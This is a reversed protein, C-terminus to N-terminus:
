LQLLFLLAIYSSVGFALLIPLWSSLSPPLFLLFSLLFSFVFPFLFTMELLIQLYLPIEIQPPLSSGPHVFM